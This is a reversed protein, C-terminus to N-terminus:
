SHCTELAADQCVLDIMSYNAFILHHRIQGVSKFWLLTCYKISTKQRVSLWGLFKHAASVHDFKTIGLIIRYAFNQILQLKSINKSSTNGWVSSCYCLRSFILARIILSLTKNDMANM